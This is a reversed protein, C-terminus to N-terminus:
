RSSRGLNGSSEWTEGEEGTGQQNLSIVFPRCPAVACAGTIGQMYAYTDTGTYTPPDDCSYYDTYETPMDKTRIYLDFINEQFYVSLQNQSLDPDSADASSFSGQSSGEETNKFTCGNSDTGSYTVKLTAQWSGGIVRYTIPYYFPNELMLRLDTVTFTQKLEFNSSEETGNETLTKTYTYTLNGGIYLPTPPWPFPCLKIADEDIDDACVGGGCYFVTGALLIVVWIIIKKYRLYTIM